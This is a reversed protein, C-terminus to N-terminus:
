PRPDGQDPAPPPEGAAGDAASSRDLDLIEVAGYYPKTVYSSVNQLRRVIEAIRRCNGRLSELHRQLEGPEAPKEPHGLAMELLEARGSIASLPQSVEHALAGALRMVAQLKESRVLEDKLQRQETVDETVEVVLPSDGGPSELLFARQRRYITRGAIHRVMEREQSRGERFAAAVPCDPCPESLGHIAQHCKKGLLETYAAKGSMALGARNIRRITMDGAVLLVAESIGDFILQLERKIRALVQQTKLLAQKQRAERLAAAVRASLVRADFPKVLYDVAGCALMGVISEAGRDGSIVVVPVKPMEPDERILRLIDGGDSDPLHRDLLVLDLAPGPSRLSAICEGASAAQSVQYGLRTLQIDLLQRADGDDEVVLIHGSGDERALTEESQHL